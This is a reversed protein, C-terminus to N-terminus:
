KPALSSGSQKEKRISQSRPVLQVIHLDVNVDYSCQMSEKQAGEFYFPTREPLARTVQYAGQSNRRRAINPRTRACANISNHPDASLVSPYLPFETQGM